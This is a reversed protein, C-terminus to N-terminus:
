LAEDRCSVLDADVVHDEEKVSVLAASSTKAEAEEVDQEGNSDTQSDPIHDMRFNAVFDVYPRKEIYNLIASRHIRGGFTLDAADDYLWPSLFRVIDKQLKASYLGKDYGKQFRVKLYVKIEEYDPNAVEINTFDSALEALYDGIVTLKNLSLRPKLPDVANKNRLNPVVVLRVHGPSYESDANTHNICRVKYVEPFKELVLREYDFITVARGKHRLRESVRIYFGEDSEKVQGGFSAYPQSVSKIAAARQKLKSITKASLAQSLHSPDNKNDRFSAAVAQPHVAILKPIAGTEKEVSAKIWHLGKPWLTETDTMTKPMAFKIVGSTLLGNTGDAVIDTTKFDVWKGGALYSWVVKQIPKDPDESGEAVQFLLALNQPLKLKDIGIYLTGEATKSLASGDAKKVTVGFEPVLKRAIPIGQSDPDDSIPYVEQQGFPGIQFLREIRNKFDDKTRATYDIVEAAEYDLAFSAMLPTYPPNPIAAPPKAPKAAEMLLPAYMGHLFSTALEAMMFGQRLSTDFSDFTELAPDASFPTSLNFDLDKNSSPVVSGTKDEFLAASAPNLVRWDGAQLIKFNAKFYQNNGVITKGASDKYVSYHSSFSEGPLDAWTIHLELGTLAKRFVEPSGILFRSNARPVPGFPHFPKAANLIGVDNELILGKIGDVNLSIELRRLEINQFYRYPYSGVANWYDLYENPRFGAGTIDKKARYLQGQFFVLSQPLYSERTDSYDTVQSVQGSVIAAAALGENKLIFKIVPFSTDYGGELAEKDYAVVAGDEASLTLIYRLYPGASATGLEVEVKVDDEAVKLWAENGSAYIGVNAQLEKQLDQASASFGPLKTVYFTLAIERTGETLFFMPSAVAFGINAPPMERSGFTEWKGEEDEIAAGKGDSSDADPAAFINIVQGNGGKLVYLSKLGHNPDLLSPNVVLESDTAYFLDIKKADKGAKLYTDKTLRHSEFRKSLEFIVHVRDPVDKRPVFRLVEKYYFDLHAKTLGNLHTRAFELLKLFALFLAMHPQHAPYDELTEELYTPANDVTFVLAGYFRDFVAAVRQLAEDLESRPGGAGSPFLSPDAEVASLNWLKHFRNTDVEAVPLGIESARKAYSLADRLGQGLTSAILRELASRLSLGEISKRYWDEFAEALQVIHPFLAAFATPIDAATVVKKLAEDFQKKRSAYDSSGILAVLASIDHEIFAVWDGGPSNNPTYYRLLAAYKQAYNLLDGLKREDVLVSTPSLAEVLRQRQSTGDRRLPNLFRCGTAM